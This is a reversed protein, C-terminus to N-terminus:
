GKKLYKNFTIIDVNLPTLYEVTGILLVVIEIYNYNCVSYLFHTDGIQDVLQLKEFVEAQIDQTKYGVQIRYVDEIFKKTNKLKKLKMCLDLFKIEEKAKEPNIHHFAQQIAISPVNNSM